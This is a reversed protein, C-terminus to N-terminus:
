YDVLNKYIPLKKLAKLLYNATLAVFIGTGVGALTLAPLYLVININEIIISSAIIQGVNHFFAGSVSVGILSVNDKGLSKTLQMALLSLIGGALSYMIGSPNPALLTNLLIRSILVVFTDKFGIMYLATVTIINSLGLKAGPTIFIVPLMGEFIHLILAQAVLVSIFALKQIKKM